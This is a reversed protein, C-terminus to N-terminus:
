IVAEKRVPTPNLRSIAVPAHLHRWSTKALGALIMPASAHLLKFATQYRKRKLARSVWFLAMTGICAYREFRRTAGGPYEGRRELRALCSSADILRDVAKITNSAHQRYAVTTPRQLIIFPGSTGLRLMMDPIDFPFATLEPRFAGTTLAVNRQVVLQSCTLSVSVDRSLYDPYTLYEILEASNASPLGAREDVQQVAGLIVAPNLLSRTVHDYTALANPYLMDDDDLLVLYDGSSAAVARHRAAEAGHNEQCILKLRSNYSKAVEIAGDTSGDDVVVIEFNAFTQALVSDITRSLFERRNFSPIVISFRPPRM